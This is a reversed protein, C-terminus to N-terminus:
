LRSTLYGNTIWLMCQYPTSSIPLFYILYTFNLYGPCPKDARKIVRKNQLLVMDWLPWHEDSDKQEFEPLSPYQYAWKSEPTCKINMLNEIFVKARWMIKLHHASLRMGDRLLVKKQLILLM